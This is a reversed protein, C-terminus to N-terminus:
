RRLPCIDAHRDRLMAVTAKATRDFAGPARNDITIAHEMTEIIEVPTYFFLWFTLSQVSLPWAYGSWILRWHELVEQVEAPDRNM